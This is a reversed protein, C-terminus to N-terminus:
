KSRNRGSPNMVDARILFDEERENARAYKDEFNENSNLFADTEVM